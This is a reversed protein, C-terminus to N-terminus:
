TSTWVEEEGGGAGETAGGRRGGPRLPGGGRRGGPPATAGGPPRGRTGGPRAGGEAGGPLDLGGPAGARTVAVSDERVDRPLAQSFLSPPDSTNCSSNFVMKSANKQVDVSLNHILHSQFM